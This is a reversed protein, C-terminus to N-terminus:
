DRQAFLPLRKSIPFDQTLNVDKSFASRSVRAQATDRNSGTRKLSIYEHALDPILLYRVAQL